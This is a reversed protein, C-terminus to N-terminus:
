LQPVVEQLQLPKYSIYTKLKLTSKLLVIQGKERITLRSRTPTTTPPRNTLSLSLSELLSSLSNNEQEKNNPSPIITDINLIIYKDTKYYVIFNLDGFCYLIIRHHRTSSNIQNTTNTKEFKYSYDRFEQSGIFKHIAAEKYSFIATNKTVEINITFTLRVGYYGVV